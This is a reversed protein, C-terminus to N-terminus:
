LALSGRDGTRGKAGERGSTGRASEEMVKKKEKKRIQYKPTTSSDTQETRLYSLRVARLSAFCTPRMNISM